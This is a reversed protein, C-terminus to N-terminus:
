APAPSQSVPTLADAANTESEDSQVPKEGVIGAAVAKYAGTLFTGIYEPCEVYWVAGSHMIIRVRIERKSFAYGAYAAPAAIAGLGVLIAAFERGPGVKMSLQAMYQILAKNTLEVSGTAIAQRLTEAAAELAATPNLVEVIVSGLALSGFTIGVTRLITAPDEFGMRSQIHDISGIEEPKLATGDPFQLELVAPESGDNLRMTWTARGGGESKKGEFHVKATKKYM